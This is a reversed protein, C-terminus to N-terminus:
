TTRGDRLELYIRGLDKLARLTALLLRFILEEHARAPFFEEVLESFYALTVATPPDKQIDFFSEILDCGSITVLEKREKEYYFVTVFTMPELLSGFRNGFKRAGKAVGRVLGKDRSFFTVIKDQDSFATSRLIVAETQDLAM